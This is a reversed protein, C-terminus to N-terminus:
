QAGAFTAVPTSNLGSIAAMLVNYLSAAAPQGTEVSTELQNRVSKGSRVFKIVTRRTAKSCITPVFKQALCYDGYNAATDKLIDFTNAAATVYEAPVTTTTVVDVTKQITGLSPLGGTTGCGALLAACAIAALIKRM